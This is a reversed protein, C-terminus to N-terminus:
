AWYSADNQRGGGEEERRERESDSRFSFAFCFKPIIERLIQLSDFATLGDSRAQNKYLQKNTM